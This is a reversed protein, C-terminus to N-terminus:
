CIHQLKKVIRWVVHRVDLMDFFNLILWETGVSKVFEISNKNGYALVWRKSPQHTISTLTQGSPATTPYSSPASTTPSHPTAIISPPARAFVGWLACRVCCLHLCLRLGASRADSVVCTLCLRLGQVAGMQCLVLSSMYYYFAQLARMQCLVLSSM